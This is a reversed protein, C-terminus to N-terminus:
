PHETAGTVSKCPTLGEMGVVVRRDRAYMNAAAEAAGAARLTMRGALIGNGALIAVVSKARAFSLVLNHAESGRSDAHGEVILRADAHHGLWDRLRAIDRGARGVASHEGARVHADRPRFLATARGACANGGADM